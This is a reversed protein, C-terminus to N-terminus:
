FYLQYVRLNSNFPLLILFITLLAFVNCRSHVVIAHVQMAICKVGNVCITAREDGQWLRGFIARRPANATSPVCVLAASGLSQHLQQSCSDYTM